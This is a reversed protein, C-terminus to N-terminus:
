SEVVSSVSSVSPFDREKISSGFSMKDTFFVKDQLIEGGHGGHGRHHLTEGEHLVKM